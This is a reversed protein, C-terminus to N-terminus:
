FLSSGLGSAALWSRQWVMVADWVRHGPAPGPRLTAIHSPPQGRGPRPSRGPLSARRVARYREARSREPAARCGWERIPASARRRRCPRPRWPASRVGAMPRPSAHPTLSRPGTSPGRRPPPRLRPSPRRGRRSGSTMATAGAPPESPVRRVTVIWSQTSVWSKGAVAWTMPSTTLASRGHVDGDGRDNEVQRGVVTPQDGGDVHLVLRASGNGPARPRRRGPPSGGGPDAPTAMAASFSM